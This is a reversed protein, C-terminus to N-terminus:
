SHNNEGQLHVQTKKLNIKVLRLLSYFGLSCFITKLAVDVKPHNPWFAPLISYIKGNKSINNM